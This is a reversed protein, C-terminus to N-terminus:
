QLLDDINFTAEGTLEAKDFTCNGGVNLCLRLSYTEVTSGNSEAVEYVTISDGPRAAQNDEWGCRLLGGNLSTYTDLVEGGPLDPQGEANAAESNDNACSGTNLTSCGALYALLDGSSSMLAAADIDAGPSEVGSGPDCNAGLTPNDENDEFEIVPYAEDVVDTTGDAADTVDVGDAVDVGDTIDVGDTTDVGDTLDLADSQDAADTGTTSTADSDGGSGPECAALLALVGMCLTFHQLWVKM